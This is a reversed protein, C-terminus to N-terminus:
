DEELMRSKELPTGKHVAGQMAKGLNGERRAEKYRDGVPDSKEKSNITTSIETDRHLSKYSEEYNDESEYSTRGRLGPFKM